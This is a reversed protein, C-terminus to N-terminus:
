CKCTGRKNHHGFSCITSSTLSCWCLASHSLGKGSLSATSPRIYGLPSAKEAALVCQQSLNLKSDVHVGQDRGMASRELPKTVYYSVLSLVPLWIVLCYHNWWEKGWLVSNALPKSSSTSLTMLYSTGRSVSGPEALQQASPVNGSPISLSCDPICLLSLLFEELFFLIKFALHSDDESPLVM